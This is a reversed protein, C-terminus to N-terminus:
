LTRFWWSRPDSADSDSKDQRVVAWVTRIGVSVLTFVPLSVVVTLGLRLLPRTERTLPVIPGVLAALLGMAFVTLMCLFTLPCWSAFAPKENPGPVLFELKLLGSWFTGSPKNAPPAM